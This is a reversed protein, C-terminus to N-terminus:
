RLALTIRRDEPGTTEIRVEVAGEPILPEILGPWEIFCYEGSYFYEEYGLDFVEELNEIRYFDFHYISGSKHEYENVIAFTPSKVVDGTGLLMCMAKVLTTKGAGLDGYIAFIRHNGWVQLIKEAVVPVQELGHIELTM